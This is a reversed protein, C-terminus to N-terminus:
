CKGKEVISFMDAIYCHWSYDQVAIHASKAYEDYRNTEFLSTISDLLSISSDNYVYSGFNIIEGFEEVFERYPYVIVPTYYYMAEIVLSIQDESLCEDIVVGFLDTEILECLASEDPVSEKILQIDIM